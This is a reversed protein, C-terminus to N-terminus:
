QDKAPIIAMMRSAVKSVGAGSNIGASVAFVRQFPNFGWGGGSGTRKLPSESNAKLKLELHAHCDVM